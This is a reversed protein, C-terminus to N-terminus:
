EFAAGNLYRYIIHRQLHRVARLVFVVYTQIRSRYLSIAPGFQYPKSLLSASLRWTCPKIKLRSEGPKVEKGRQFGLVPDPRAIACESRAPTKGERSDWPETAQQVITPLLVASSEGRHKGKQWFQDKVSQRNDEITITHRATNM